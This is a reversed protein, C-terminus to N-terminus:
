SIEAFFLMKVLAAARWPSFDLDATTSWIAGSRRYYAVPAAGM